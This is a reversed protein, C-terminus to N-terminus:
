PKDAASKKDQASADTGTAETKQIQLSPDLGLDLKLPSDAQAQTKSGAKDKLTNDHLETAEPLLLDYPPTNTDLVLTTKNSLTKQLSVLKRLFM